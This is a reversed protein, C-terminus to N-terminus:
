TTKKMLLCMFIYRITGKAKLLDEPLDCASDAFIEFSM